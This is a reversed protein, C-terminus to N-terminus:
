IPVHFFSTNDSGLGFYDERVKRSSSLDPSAVQNPRDTGNAGVGTQQVGSYVTFPLGSTFTGIGLVQWGETLIKGLPRLLAARDAHLDQFLSFTLANKIDFSSPGRDARTDFPNQPTTQSVAGSYGSIFGGAVASTDDISKSFTYSAQFELGSAILDKQASM